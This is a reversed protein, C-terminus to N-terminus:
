SYTDKNGDQNISKATRYLELVSTDLNSVMSTIIDKSPTNKHGDYIIDSCYGCYNCYGTFFRNVSYNIMFLLQTRRIDCKSDLLIVIDLLTDM